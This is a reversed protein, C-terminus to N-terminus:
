ESQAQPYNNPWKQSLVFEALNSTQKQTLIISQSMGPRSICLEGSIWLIQVGDANM